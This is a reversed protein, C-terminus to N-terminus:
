ESEAKHKPQTRIKSISSCPPRIVYTDIEQQLGLTTTTHHNDDDNNNNNNDDDDYNQKIKNHLDFFYYQLNTIFNLSIISYTDNERKM